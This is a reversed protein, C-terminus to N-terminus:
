RSKSCVPCREDGQAHWGIEPEFHGRDFNMRAQVTVSDGRPPWELIPDGKGKYRELTIGDKGAFLLLQVYEGDRDEYWGNLPFDGSSLDLFGNPLRAALELFGGSGNDDRDDSEVSTVSDMLMALSRRGPFDIERFRDLIALEAQTPERIYLPVPQEGEAVIVNRLSTDEAVVYGEGLISNVVHARHRIRGRDWLISREITAGSDVSVDDGLVTPGLISARDGVSCREGIQVNGLIQVNAGIQATKAIGRLRRAGPLRMRGSLVDRTARVYESPTGIDCWYAGGAELGYFAARDRQLDPFVQKGFDYFEGAPIRKFIEPEFVYVGTNVLHSKETGPAPKEQFEVIKGNKDVVVVGYHSVDEAEVLAITALARRDRHFGIVNDLPIDTLDDCGIVVFTEDFFPEMQKVAGASGLLQPEHLYHLRVGCASGDGLRKEIQEAHYHLNIAIEEIGFSRLYRMVHIANPEGAIPVLPKPVAKTLPYLRTSLGGALIM